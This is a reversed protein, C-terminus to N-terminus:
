QWISVHLVCCTWAVTSSSKFYRKVEIDGGTVSQIIVRYDNDQVWVVHLLNRATKERM